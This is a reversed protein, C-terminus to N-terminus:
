SPLNQKIGLKEAARYQRMAQSYSGQKNLYANIDDDKYGLLRGVLADNFHRNLEIQKYSVIDTIITAGKSIEEGLMQAREEQGKQFYIAICNILFHDRPHELKDTGDPHRFLEKTQSAFELYGLNGAAIEARAKAALKLADELLMFNCRGNEFWPLPLCLAIKRKGSIVDEGALAKEPGIIGRAASALFEAKTYLPKEYACSRRRPTKQKKKKM